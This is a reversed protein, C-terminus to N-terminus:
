GSDTGMARRRLLSTKHDRMVLILDGCLKWTRLNEAPVPFHAAFPLDLGLFAFSFVAADDDLDGDRARRQRMTDAIAGPNVNPTNTTTPFAAATTDAPATTGESSTAATADKNAPPYVTIENQGNKNVRPEASREDPVLSGQRFREFRRRSETLKIM